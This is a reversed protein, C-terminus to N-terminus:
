WAIAEKYHEMLFCNIKNFIRAKRLNQVSNKNDPYPGKIILHKDSNMIIKEYADIIEDGLLVFVVPRHLTDEVLTRVVNKNFEEWGIGVHASPSYFNGTVVNNLLLVGQEALYGLDKSRNLNMGGYEEDEIIDQLTESIPNSFPSSDPVSYALGYAVERNLPYRDLLVVKTDVYPCKKFPLFLLDSDPYVASSMREKKLTGMLSRTSENSLVPKLKELWEYGMRELMKNYKRDKSEMKWHKIPCVYKLGNGHGPDKRLISELALKRSSITYRYLETEYVIMDVMEVIVYYVSWAMWKMYKDKEKETKRYFVKDNEESISGVPRWRDPENSQSLYLRGSSKDFKLKTGDKDPRSAIMAMKEAIM